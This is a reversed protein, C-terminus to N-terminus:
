REPSGGPWPQAGDPGGLMLAGLLVVLALLSIGAIPWRRLLGEARDLVGGWGRMARAAAEAPVLLDGEPLRPLRHQWRRLGVALVGGLLVPWLAEWLLAPALAEAPTGFGLPSFLNWPVAVAALAMALWPLTLAVPPSTATDAAARSALRQLFHAMLLASGIAALTALTKAVGEGLPAKVALKALAGGTLPLGAFGLAVVMAPLLLSWLRRKASAAAVGVALFLAGKALVHHTAYFAAATAGGPDGAALGAGLVAAVLGMQSVSSYALVTKPNAQTIGVAVGWFATVFGCAVLAAGWDALGADVPLFRILGIIGAKIIAGSLVASAPMPAAPHAVPLWVHLPVLGAKLGFGAILLVLMLNRQSSTPLAAVIERMALTDGPTADAMLAFAVLLFIEALVALTLYLAAARRAPGTGDHIVLGYAPLSALAFSVYFSALDAAFFVWLSGLLTLLWCVAFIGRNPGGGLYARAYLGAASWLLAAAGLLMAGPLDLAQTLELGAEDLVLPPGGVALLAAAVGPLPALWLWSLMRYRLDRSLCALLMATPAALTGLLLVATVAPL